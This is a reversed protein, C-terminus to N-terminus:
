DDKKKDRTLADVAVQLISREMTIGFDTKNRIERLVDNLTMKGKPTSMYPKDRLGDNHSLVWQELLCDIQSRWRGQIKKIMDLADKTNTNKIFYLNDANIMSKLDDEEMSQLNKGSMMVVSLLDTKERIARLGDIGQEGEDFSCDLFVITRTELSQLIYEVADEVKNYLSINADAFGKRIIQIFSANENMQDDVVVMNYDNM